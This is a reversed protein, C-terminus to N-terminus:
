RALTDAFLIARHFTMPRSRRVALLGPQEREAYARAYGRRSQASRLFTLPLIRSHNKSRAVLGRAARRASGSPQKNRASTGAAAASDFSEGIFLTANEAFAGAFLGKRMAGCRM